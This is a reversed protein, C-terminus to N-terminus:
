LRKKGGEGRQNRRDGARNRQEPQSINACIALEWKTCAETKNRSHMVRTSLHRGAYVGVPISGLLNSHCTLVEVLLQSVFEMWASTIHGPGLGAARPRCLPTERQRDRKVIPRNHYEPRSHSSGLDQWYNWDILVSWLWGSMGSISRCGWHNIQM